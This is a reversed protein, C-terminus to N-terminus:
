GRAKSGSSASKFLCSSLLAVGLAQWFTIAQLGFLEPMLWNWLWYIPLTLILTVVILVGVVLGMATLMEDM